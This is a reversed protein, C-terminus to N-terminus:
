ILGATKLSSIVDKLVTKMKKEVARATHTVDSHSLVDDSMGAALNTICAIGAVKMGSHVAAITESVTSMGVADAGVTRLYRIEAPTEYTPGTVGAYVGESFRIRNKKFSEAIMARMQPCYPASMDPFRPGLFAPNVGILPNTGTLNLHDKIIMFDGPRMHINIGGSANTLFIREVGLQKMLRVPFTVETHSHGEYFHVRGQLCYILVGDIKGLVLKGKHGEITPPIFHPIESYNWSNLIEIEESFADWGSGLVFAIRPKGQATKQILQAAADLAKKLAETNM